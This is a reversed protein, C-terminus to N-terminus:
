RQLKPENRRHNAPRPTSRTPSEGLGKTDRIDRSNYFGVVNELPNFLQKSSKGPEEPRPKNSSNDSFHTLQKVRAIAVLEPSLERGVGAKEL